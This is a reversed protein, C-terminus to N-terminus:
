ADVQIKTAGNCAGDNSMQEVVHTFDPHYPYIKKEWLYNKIDVVQYGNLREIILVTCELRHFHSPPPIKSVFHNKVRLTLKNPHPALM